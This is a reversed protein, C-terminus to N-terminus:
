NRPLGEMELQETRIGDSALSWSPHTPIVVSEPCAPRKAWANWM